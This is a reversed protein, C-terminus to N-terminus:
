GRKENKERWALQERGSRGDCVVGGNIKLIYFYTGFCFDSIRNKLREVYKLKKRGEKKRVKKSKKKEVKREKKRENKM